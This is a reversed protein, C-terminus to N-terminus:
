KLSLAENLLAIFDERDKPSENQTFDMVVQDFTKNIFMDITYPNYDTEIDYGDVDFFYDAIKNAQDENFLIPQNKM